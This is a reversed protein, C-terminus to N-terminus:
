NIFSRVLVETSKFSDRIQMQELAESILSEDVAIAAM